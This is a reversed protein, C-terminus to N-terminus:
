RRAHLALQAHPEPIRRRLAQEVFDRRAIELLLERQRQLQRRRTAAIFTGASAATVVARGSTARSSAYSRSTRRSLGIPM